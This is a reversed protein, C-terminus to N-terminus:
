AALKEQVAAAISNVDRLITKAAEPDRIKLGFNKDLAVVLQLADVSDLGLGGPGFLPADDKIDAATIQLMLNEVMLKKIQDRLANADEMIFYAGVETLLSRTINGAVACAPFKGPSRAPGPCADLM